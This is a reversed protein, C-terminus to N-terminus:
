ARRRGACAVCTTSAPRAALREEGIPGGCVICAGYEGTGIRALAADVEAVRRENAALVALLQAREFAITAGEPDHEDDANDHESAAVVAALDTRLREAASRLGSREALLQEAMQEPPAWAAPREAPLRDRRTM